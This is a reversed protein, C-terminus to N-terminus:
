WMEMGTTTELSSAAELSETILDEVAKLFLNQKLEDHKLINLVDDKLKELYANKLQQKAKAMAQTIKGQFDLKLQNALFEDSILNKVQRLNSRFAQKYPELLYNLIHSPLPTINVTTRIQTIQGQKTIELLVTIEPRSRDTQRCYFLFAPIDLRESDDILVPIFGIIKEHGDKQIQNRLCDSLRELDINTEKLTNNAIREGLDDIFLLKGDNTLQNFKKQNNEDDYSDIKGSILSYSNEAIFLEDVQNSELSLLNFSFNKNQKINNLTSDRINIYQNEVKSLQDIKYHYNQKFSEIKNLMHQCETTERIYNGIARLAIQQAEEAVEQFFQLSTSSGRQKISYRAKKDLQEIAQMQKIEDLLEGFLYDLDQKFEELEEPHKNELNSLRELFMSRLQQGRHEFISLRDCIPDIQQTVLLRYGLFFQEYESHVFKEKAILQEVQLSFNNKAKKLNKITEQSYEDTKDRLLDLQKFYNTSLIEFENFVYQVNQILKKRSSGVNVAEEYATLIDAILILDKALVNTANVIGNYQRKFNREVSKYFEHNDIVVKVTKFFNSWELELEAKIKSKISEEPLSLPKFTVQYQHQFIQKKDVAKKLAPVCNHEKIVEIAQSIDKLYIKGISKRYNHIHLDFIQKYYKEFLINYFM